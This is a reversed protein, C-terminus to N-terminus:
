LWAVRRLSDVAYHELGACVPRPRQAISGGDSNRVWVHHPLAGRSPRGGSLPPASTPVQAPGRPRPLMRATAPNPTCRKRHSSMTCVLRYRRSVNTAGARPCVASMHDRLSCHVCITATLPSPMPRTPKVLGTRMPWVSQSALSHTASVDIRHATDPPITPVIRSITVAPPRTPEDLMTAHQEQAESLALNSVFLVVDLVRDHAERPVRESSPLVQAGLCVGVTAPRAVSAADAAADARALWNDYFGAGHGLRGNDADFAVGPVVVLDVRAELANARSDDRPPEAIGWNSRPFAEIDAMSFAEVMAMDRAKVDEVRPLFVRKNAAFAAELIPATDLEGPMSCFACVKTASKWNDRAFLRQAVRASESQIQTAPLAACVAKISRRLAKKAALIEVM